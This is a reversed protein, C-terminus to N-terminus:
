LGADAVTSAAAPRANAPGTFLLVPATSGRPTQDRWGTVSASVGPPRQPRGGPQRTTVSASGHGSTLPRSRPRAATRATRTRRAVPRAVDHSSAPWGRGGAALACPGKAASIKKREGGPQAAPGAPLAAPLQAPGAACEPGKGSEPMRPVREPGAPRNKAGPAWARHCRAAVPRDRAPGAPEAAAGPPAKPSDLWRVATIPGRALNGTGRGSPGPVAQSEGPFPECPPRPM